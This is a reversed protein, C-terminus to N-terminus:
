LNADRHRTQNQTGISLGRNRMVESRKEIPESPQSWSGGFGGRDDDDQDEQGRKFGDEPLEDRLREGQLVRRARREEGHERHLPGHARERPRDRKDVAAAPEEQARKANGGGAMPVHVRGLFNREQDRLAAVTPEEFWLFLHAKM